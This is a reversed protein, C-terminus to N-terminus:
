DPLLPLDRGHGSVFVIPGVVVCGTRNPSPFKFPAPLTFGMKQVKEEIASM